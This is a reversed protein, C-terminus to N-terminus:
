TRPITLRQRAVMAVMKFRCFVTIVLLKAMLTRIYSKYNGQEYQDEDLVAQEVECKLIRFLATKLSNITVNKPLKSQFDRTGPTGHCSNTKLKTKQKSKGM